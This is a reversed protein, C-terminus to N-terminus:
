CHPFPSGWSVRIRDAMGALRPERRCWALGSQISQHSAGPHTPSAFGICTRRSRRRPRIVSRRTRKWASSVSRKWTPPVKPQLERVPVPDRHRVQELTEHVTSGKFPPRGTLFEYLIAGVAHVDTAPGIEETRGFAQEPAMYSPTGIVSGDQTKDSSDDVRKALGFDTIKLVSHPIHSVPPGSGRATPEGDLTSSESDAPGGETSLLVNSPKLDRHVIGRLLPCLPDGARPSRGDGGSVHAVATRWETRSLPGGPCYELSFFPQNRYEGTEYVQM